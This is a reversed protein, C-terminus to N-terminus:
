FSHWARKPPAFEDDKILVDSAPGPVGPLSREDFARFFASCGFPNRDLDFTPRIPPQGRPPFSIASHAPDERSTTPDFVDALQDVYLRALGKTGVIIPFGFISGHLHQAFFGDVKGACQAPDSARLHTREPSLRRITALYRHTVMRYARRFDNVHEMEAQSVKPLVSPKILKRVPKLTPVPTPCDRNDGQQTAWFRKEDSFSGSAILVEVQGPPPTWSATCKHCGTAPDPVSGATVAPVDVKKPATAGLPFSPVPSGPPQRAKVIAMVEEAPLVKIDPADIDPVPDPGMNISGDVCGVPPKGGGGKALSDLKGMTNRGVQGDAFGNKDVLRHKRQFGQVAGLTENGFVGDLTGDPKTSEPLSFEEDVLGQQVKRVPTGTAGFKLPPSNDFAQELRPEGKYPENKLDESQEGATLRQLASHASSAAGVNRHRRGM